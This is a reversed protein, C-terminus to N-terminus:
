KCNSYDVLFANGPVEEDNSKGNEATVILHVTATQPAYDLFLYELITNPSHMGLKKSEELLDFNKYALLENNISRFEVELSKVYSDIANVAIPGFIYKSTRIKSIPDIKCAIKGMISGAYLFTANGALVGIKTQNYLIEDRFYDALDSPFNEDIIRARLYDYMDIYFLQYTSLRNTEYAFNTQIRSYAVIVAQDFVRVNRGESGPDVSKIHDRMVLLTKTLYNGLIHPDGGKKFKLVPYEIDQADMDILWGEKHTSYYNMLSDDSGRMSFYQAMGEILSGVEFNEDYFYMIKINLPKQLFHTFEHIITEKDIPDWSGFHIYDKMPDFWSGGTVGIVVDLGSLLLNKPMISDDSIPGPPWLNKSFDELLNLINAYANLQGVQVVKSKDQVGNKFMSPYDFKSKDPDNPLSDQVTLSPDVAFVRLFDNWNLGYGGKITTPPNDLPHPDCEQTFEKTSFRKVDYGCDIPDIPSHEYAYMMVVKQPDKCTNSSDDFYFCQPEETPTPTPTITPTPTPTADVVEVKCEADPLLSQRLIVTKPGANPWKTEFKPYVSCATYPNELGNCIEPSGPPNTDWKYQNKDGGTGTFIVEKNIYVEPPSSCSLAGPSPTPTPSTTPTPTPTLTPTPSTTPTPTSVVTM